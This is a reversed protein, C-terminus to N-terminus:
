RHGVEGYEGKIYRRYDEKDDKRDTGDRGEKQWRNLISEIYRWRRVNNEVAIQIADEIWSKSYTNEASRLADAIIPTLPGINEQYLRFINPQIQDLTLNSPKLNGNYKEAAKRGQPCNIFYVVRKNPEVEVKLLINDSVAQDLTSALVKEIEDSNADLGEVFIRDSLLSQITFPIGYNGLTNVKWLLYLSLKLEDINNIEPLIERFFLDPIGTVGTDNEQFGTFQKKM